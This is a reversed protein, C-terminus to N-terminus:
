RCQFDYLFFRTEQKIKKLTFPHAKEGRRKMGQREYFGFNCSTDTFLYFDKVSESEIYSILANFLIKGLGMGRYRSDIAFFSVEGQYDKGSEKLLEKDISDVDRFTRSVGRGERTALLSTIAALQSLRFGLPCRCGAAKRGMIVGVPQGEMLAVRTYSQNALCSSLFVRAMRRATKPGSFEDYHWTARIIDELAGRDEKRYERLVIQGNM